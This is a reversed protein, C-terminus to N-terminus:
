EQEIPAPLRRGTPTAPVPEVHGAMVLADVNVEDPDLAVVGGPAVGAIDCVGVVRYKPNSM